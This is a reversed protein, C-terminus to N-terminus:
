KVEKGPKLILPKILVDDKIRFQKPQDLNKKFNSYAVSLQFCSGHGSRIQDCTLLIQDKTVNLEIFGNNAGGEYLWKYIKSNDEEVVFYVWEDRGIVSRRAWFSHSQQNEV